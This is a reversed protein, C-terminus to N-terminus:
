LFLTCNPALSAIQAHCCKGRQPSMIEVELEKTFVGAALFIILRHLVESLLSFAELLWLKYNELFQALNPWTVSRKTRVKRKVVSAIEIVKLAVISRANISVPRAVMEPVANISRILFIATLKFETQYWDRQRSKQERPFMGCERRM